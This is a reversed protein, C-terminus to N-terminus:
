RCSCVDSLWNVYDRWQLLPKLRSNGKPQYSADLTDRNVRALAGLEGLFVFLIVEAFEAFEAGRRSFVRVIREFIIAVNFRASACLGSLFLYVFRQTSQAKALFIIRKRGGDNNRFLTRTSTTTLADPEGRAGMATLAAQCDAFQVYLTCIILNSYFAAFAADFARFCPM